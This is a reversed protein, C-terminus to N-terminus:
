SIKGHNVPLLSIRKAKGQDSCMNLAATKTLSTDLICAHQSSLAENKHAKALKVAKNQHM